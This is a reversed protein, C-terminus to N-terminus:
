ESVSGNGAAELMKMNLCKIARGKGSKNIRSGGYKKRMCVLQAIVKATFVRTVWLNRPLPEGITCLSQLRFAESSIRM